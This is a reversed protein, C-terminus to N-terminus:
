LPALLQFLCRAQSLPLLRLLQISELARAYFRAIKRVRVIPLTWSHLPSKVVISARCLRAPEPVAQKPINFSTYERSLNRQHHPVMM